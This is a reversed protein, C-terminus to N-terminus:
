PRAARRRPSLRRSPSPRRCAAQPHFDVYAGFDTLNDGADRLSVIGSFSIPRLTTMTALRCGRLSRPSSDCPMITAAENPSSPRGTSAPNRSSTGTPAFSFYPRMAEGNARLERSLWMVYRYDTASKSM